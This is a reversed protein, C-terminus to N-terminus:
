LEVECESYVEMIIGTDSYLNSQAASECINVDVEGHEVLKHLLRAVKVRLGEM